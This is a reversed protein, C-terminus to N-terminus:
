ESPYGNEKRWLYAFHYMAIAEERSMGLQLRYSALVAFLTAFSKAGLRPYEYLKHTEVTAVDIITAHPGCMYLLASVMFTGLELEHLSPYKTITDLDKARVVFQRFAAQAARTVTVNAPRPQAKRVQRAGLSARKKTETM